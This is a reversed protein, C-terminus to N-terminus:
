PPSRRLHWIALLSLAALLAAGLFPLTFAHTAARELQDDIGQELAALAATDAEDVEIGNFAPALDPLQDVATIQEGVAEAVELKTQAPLPADLLLATGADQGADAQAELQSSLLPTLLLIGVVIGAHRAALTEAARAGLPDHDGLAAATLVPLTLALGAGILLQPAITLEVGAGPIVGLGALGGAIAIAGAIALQGAGAGALSIRGSLVAAAPMVSVVAAAGLPSLGWGETLLIVLLFLAATLGASLLALAIEPRRDAAREPGPEPAAMTGRAAPLLLLLPVQLFFISEWSLLETLTGGLAPGLALGITGAAGWLLAASRHDGRARAILEIAGALIAAGGAAQVCRAIILLGIEPALACGLSALGFVGIGAGWALSPMRRALRSAPIILAALILNYATLVWSVGLVSTDYERLIEPLALTVVSSDALVVGVSLAWIATRWTNPVM